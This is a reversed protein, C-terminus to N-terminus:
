PQEGESLGQRGPFIEDVASWATRWTIWPGFKRRVWKRLLEAAALRDWDRDSKLEREANRARVMEPRLGASDKLIVDRASGKPGPRFGLAALLADREEEATPRREVMKGLDPVHDPAKAKANLPEVM